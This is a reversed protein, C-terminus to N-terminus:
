LQDDGTALHKGRRDNEFILVRLSTRYRAPRLRKSTMKFLISFNSISYNEFGQYLLCCIVFHKLFLCFGLVPQIAAPFICGLSIYFIANM